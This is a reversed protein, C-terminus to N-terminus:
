QHDYGVPTMARFHERGARFTTLEVLDESRWLRDVEHRGVFWFTGDDVLIIVTGEDGSHAALPRGIEVAAPVHRSLLVLADEADGSDVDITLM